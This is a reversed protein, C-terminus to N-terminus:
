ALGDLPGTSDGFSDREIGVHQLMTLYLNCLPTDPRARLRRGPRIAGCGGGALLLPLDHPDHSNGDKLTSGFLVQSNHLLSTGGEDLTRMRELLYAVQEVHWTGIREYQALMEPQNRHHSISHFSGKVGDLFSFNRGTQANGMMFTAVRTSDTWFALVMIDLMLRLHEQHVDPIGVAPREVEFPSDNIWRKQPKLSNEIRQEVSRVAELYEDIKVRDGSGVQNQLSRADERVLDLM